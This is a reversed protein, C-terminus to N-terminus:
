ILAMIGNNSSCDSYFYNFYTCTSEISAVTVFNRFWRWWWRKRCICITASKHWKTNDHKRPSFAFLRWTFVRWITIKAPKRTAVKRGELCLYSLCSAFLRRMFLTTNEHPPAFPRWAFVRFRWWKAPKRTAGKRGSFVIIRCPVFWGGYICSRYSYPKLLVNQAVSLSLQAAYLCIWM